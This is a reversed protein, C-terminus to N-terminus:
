FNTILIERDKSKDKKNYSCSSYDASLYHVHYSTLWDKLLPNDCKLNNSLAFKIGKTNLTTLYNLLDQEMQETWMKAEYSTAMKDYRPPDCYVIDNINFKNNSIYTNFFDHYDLSLFNLNQKQLINCFGKLRKRLIPNFSSREKGFPMNFEGKKNFRIQNSFAYCILTYFKISDPEQNYSNRLRLYAESNTKSLDYIDIVKDIEELIQQVETAYFYKFLDIIQNCNDIAVIKDYSLNLGVNFGVTLGGSFVDYFTNGEIPFKDIIDAIVQFKNGTYNLPSKIFGIM